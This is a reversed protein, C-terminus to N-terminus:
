NLPKRYSKPSKGTIRKFNENFASTSNFGANQAIAEITLHTTKESQLLAIAEQVKYQNILDNFNTGMGRNIIKSVVPVSLNLSEALNKISYRNDLYPKEELMLREIREQEQEMKEIAIGASQKGSWSKVSLQRYVLLVAIGSLILSDIMATLLDFSFFYRYVSVLWLVGFAGTILISTQLEQQIRLVKRNKSIHFVSLLIYVGQHLRRTGGLLFSDFGLERYLDLAYEIKFSAGSLYLPTLYILCLIFPICHLLQIKQWRKDPNINSLILFFLFPGILYLLPTNLRILHPLELILRTKYLWGYFIEITLISVM